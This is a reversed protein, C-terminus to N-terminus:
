RVTNANFFSNTAAVIGAVIRARYQSQRLQYEERPNSIYGMELLAAPTDPAKLVMFGAFRHTKERVVVRQSLERVLETAFRASMNMTERQVLDILISSVEKNEGQFNIGSILDAKNEKAALLAAEKDSATESLTYVSLGDAMQSPASDAHLSIFLAANKKHAFRTRDRLPIFVDTSRTLHVEYRGTRVLADRLELGVRLTIDKEYTGAKGIAGPDKGGHGPDIVVVYKRKQPRSPTVFEETAASSKKAEKSVLDIVYRSSAGGNAPLYFQKSVTAPQKTQLIIRHSTESSQQRINAIIGSKRPLEVAQGQWTANKVDVIVRPPNQAYSVKYSPAGSLEIVVRTKDPHAGVRVAYIDVAFASQVMGCLFMVVALCSYLFFSRVM